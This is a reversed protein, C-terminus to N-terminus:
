LRNTDEDVFQPQTPKLIALLAAESLERNNIQAYLPPNALPDVTYRWIRPRVERLVSRCQDCRVTHRADPLGLFREPRNEVHLHGTQCVPCAESLFGGRFRVALGSARWYALVYLGVLALIALALSLEARPGTFQGPDGAPTLTPAPVPTM